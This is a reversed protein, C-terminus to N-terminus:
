NEEEYSGTRYTVATSNESTCNVTSASVSFSYSQGCQLEGLSCNNDSSNCTRLDGDRGTATLLYSTAVVSLPWSVTVGNDLCTPVVSM